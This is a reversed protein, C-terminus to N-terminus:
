LYLSPPVLHWRYPKQEMSHIQKKHSTTGCTVLTGYSVDLHCGWLCHWMTEILAPGLNRLRESRGAVASCQVRAVVAQM